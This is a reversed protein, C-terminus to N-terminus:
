HKNPQDLIFLNAPSKNFWLHLMKTMYFLTIYKPFIHIM